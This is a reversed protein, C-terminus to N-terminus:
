LKGITIITNFYYFPYKINIKLISSLLRKKLLETTNLKIRGAFITELPIIEAQYLVKLITYPTFWYRHDSNINESKFKKANRYTNLNLANPVTIIIKDINKKYKEKITKLFNVPNDVHELIEGLLIYDWKENDIIDLNENILDLYYVNDFNYKSKLLDIGPKNIDVGICHKANDTLLKHFYNNNKIKTEILNVHDVCGVHIIRKGKIIKIINSIRDISYFQENIIFHYSSDFLEGSLYKLQKITPQM